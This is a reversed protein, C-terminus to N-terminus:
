VVERLREEAVTVSNLLALFRNRLYKKQEELGANAPGLRLFDFLERPAAYEILYEAVPDSFIERRYGELYKETESYNGNAQSQLWELGNEAIALRNRLLTRLYTFIERESKSPKHQKLKEMVGALISPVNVTAKLEKKLTDALTQIETGPIKAGGETADIVKVGATRIDDELMRIYVLFSQVTPVPQGDVGEVWFIREQTPQDPNDPRSIEVTDKDDKNFTVKRCLATNPAHTACTKPDLALDQGVLVIPSCGLYLAAQIGAQSVMGGKKLMGKKGVQRDLWGFFPHKDTMYSAKSPFKAAIEPRGEPDFILTTESGYQAEPFHRLNLETPDVTIVFHPTIGQKLLPGYATDTAIILFNKQAMKLLHINKALSPGAAVIIAPVNKFAEGLDSLGPSQAITPINRLLNSLTLPGDKFKTALGSQGLRFAEKIEGHVRATWQPFASAIAPTEIISTQNAMLDMLNGLLAQYVMGPEQGVVFHVFTSQLLRSLDMSQLAARFVSISPELIYLHRFYPNISNIVLPTYGLGCGVVVIIRAGRMEKANEVYEQANKAPDQPHHLALSQGNKTLVAIPMGSDSKRVAVPADTEGMIIRQALAPNRAQLWKMNNDYISM